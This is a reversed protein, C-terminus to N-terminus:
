KLAKRIANEFDICAGEGDFYGELDFYNGVKFNKGKLVSKDITFSFFTQVLPLVKFGFERVDSLRKGEFVEIKLTYKDQFRPFASRIRVARGDKPLSAVIVDREVCSIVVQLISSLTFYIACCIALLLRNQPFPMPYFQAILAFVCSISMLVLKTNSWRHDEEFGMSKLAKIAAEDLTQKVKLTEGTDIKSPVRKKTM